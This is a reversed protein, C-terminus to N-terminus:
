GLYNAVLQNFRAPNEMFMFHSGREEAEVFAIQSGSIQEHIWVQTRWPVHSGRGSVILYTRAAM